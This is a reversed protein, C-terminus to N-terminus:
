KFASRRHVCLGLSMGLFFWLYTINFTPYAIFAVSVALGFAIFESSGFRKDRMYGFWSWFFLFLMSIGIVGTESLLEVYVNNPIHKEATAFISLEPSWEFKDYLFGYGGLGVGILPSEKFIEMGTMSENLRVAGSSGADEGFKSDIGLQLFAVSGVLLAIALITSKKYSSNISVYLYYTGYVLLAVCASTSLSFVIGIISIVVFTKKRAYLALAFSALYYLGAFNGEEFTGSRPILLSGVWGMQHRDLGPLLFADGTIFVSIITYFHYFFAFFLGAFWANIIKSPLKLSAHFALTFVIINFALYVVRLAADTPRGGRFNIDTATTPEIAGVLSSIFAVFWFATCYIINRSFIRNKVVRHFLIFVVIAIPFVIEYVKLPFGIEVTLAKTFPLFVVALATLLVYVPMTLWNNSGRITLARADVRSNVLTEQM